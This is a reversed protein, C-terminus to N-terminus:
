RRQGRPAATPPLALRSAPIAEEERPTMAPRVPAQDPLAQTQMRRTAGFAAYLALMVMTLAAVFLLPTATGGVRDQLWGALPPLAGHGVYLWLYFVGMGLARHGSELVQSPLALIVGVPLGLVLGAAILAAGPPGWEAAGALLCVAWGGLGTALLWGPRQWKEALVGGLQVSLVVAWTAVAVLTGAEAASWGAGALNVPAFGIMVAFGGNYTGWLAGALCVLLLEASTLRWASRPRGSGGGDNPHRAYGALVLVLAAVPLAAAFLMCAHWGISASLAGFVLLALGIGIPFSNVFIAMALAIERGAFWDTVMKSMLVNLLVAGAGSVVRGTALVGPSSAVGTLAGGAAMLALGALVIRKDGFRQGATAAPLAVVVGPLFYLGILFGLEGYGLSLDRVLDTGLSGVSQFQFGMTTRAATLLALARWRLDM